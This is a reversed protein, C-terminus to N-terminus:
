LSLFCLFLCFPVSTTALKRHSPYIAYIVILHAPDDTSGCHVAYSPHFPVAVATRSFKDGINKWHIALFRNVAPVAFYRYCVSGYGRVLPHLLEITGISWFFISPGSLRPDVM